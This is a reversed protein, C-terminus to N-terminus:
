FPFSLGAYLQAGDYGDNHESTGANSVHLYRAGGMVHGGGAIRWTGGLGLQLRFNHHSDSPFNTTAQQFGTGGDIYVSAPDEHFFHWRAILDLGGVGGEDDREAQVAGGVGELNLSLGDLFHYGFGVAFSV